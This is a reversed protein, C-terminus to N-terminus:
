IRRPGPRSRQSAAPSQAALRELNLRQCIPEFKPMQGSLQRELERQRNEADPATNRRNDALAERINDSEDVLERLDSLDNIQPDVGPLDPFAEILRDLDRGTLKSLPYSSKVQGLMPRVGWAPRSMPLRSAVQVLPEFVQVRKALTNWSAAKQDGGQDVWALVARSWGSELLEQAQQPSLRDVCWQPLTFSGEKDKDQVLCQALCDFLVPGSAPATAEIWPNFIALAQGMEDYDARHATAAIRSQALSSGNNILDWPTVDLAHRGGPAFRDLMARLPALYNKSFRIHAESLALLRRLQEQRDPPAARAMLLDVMHGDLRRINEAVWSITQASGHYDGMRRDVDWRANPDAGWALAREQLESKNLFAAFALVPYDAQADTGFEDGLTRYDQPWLDFRQALVQGVLPRDQYLALAGIHSLEVGHGQAALLHQEVRDADSEALALLVHGTGLADQPDFPERDHLANHALAGLM